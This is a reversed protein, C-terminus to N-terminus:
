NIKRLYPTNLITSLNIKHGCSDCTVHSRNGKIVLHAIRFVYGCKPCIIEYRGALPQEEGNGISPFGM